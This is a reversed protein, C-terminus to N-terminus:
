QRARAEPYIMELADPQGAISGSPDVRGECGVSPGGLTMSIMAHLFCRGIWRSPAEPASTNGLYLMHALSTYSARQHSREPGVRVLSARLAEPSMTADSRLDPHGVHRAGLRTEPRPAGSHNGPRFGRRQTPLAGGQSPGGRGDGFSALTQVVHSPWGAGFGSVQFNSHDSSGSSRRGTRPAPCHNREPDALNFAVVQPHQITPHLYGQSATLSPGRPFRALRRVRV